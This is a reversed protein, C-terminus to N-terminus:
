YVIPAVIDNLFNLIVNFYDEWIILYNYKKNFRYMIFVIVTPIFLVITCYKIKAKRYKFIEALVYKM